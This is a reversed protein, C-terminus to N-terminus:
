RYYKRKGSIRVNELHRVRTPVFDGQDDTPLLFVEMVDIRPIKESKSMSLYANAAAKLKFLKEDTVAAAATGYKSIRDVDDSRTKVEVFVIYKDDEAIIDLEKHGVRWNRKVIRYGEEELHWCCVEEGMRGRMRRNESTVLRKYREYSLEERATEKESPRKKGFM